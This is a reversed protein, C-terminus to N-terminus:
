IMIMEKSLNLGTQIWIIYFIDLTDMSSEKVVELEAMLHESRQKSPRATSVLSLVSFLTYDRGEVHKYGEKTRQHLNQRQYSTPEQPQPSPSDLCPYDCPLTGRYVM